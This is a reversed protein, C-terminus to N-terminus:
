INDEADVPLFGQEALIDKESFPLREGGVLQFNEHGKGALILADGEALLSLAIRIAACRDEAIIYKRKDTFGDAIESLIALPPEEDPNDSTLVSLDAYKEAARALAGRRSRVRGGVSGFLLILRGKIEGRVEKCIKELSEGNHAYDIVARRNGKLYVEYRGPVRTRRLAERFAAPSDGTLESAAALALAANQANYAGPMSISFAEGNLYFRCGGRIPEIDSIKYDAEKGKGCKIARRAAKAIKEAYIDDSNLVALDCLDGEFIRRKWSFYEDIDSHEAAGIHDESFNTFLSINFHLGELRGCMVGQSSAEIVAHKVGEQVAESLLKYIVCSSPTTNDTLMDKESIGKVGVTSILLCKGFKQKLAEYLFYATTTKGKTGTVALIKIKREPNGYIKAAIRALRKVAGECSVVLVGRLKECPSESLIVRCGRGVADPIFDRGDRRQGRLAVFVSEGDAEYSKDTINKIDLDSLEEYGRLESPELIESLLM